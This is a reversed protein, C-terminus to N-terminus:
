MVGEAKDIYVDSGIQTYWYRTKSPTRGVIGISSSQLVGRIYCFGNSYLNYQRHETINTEAFTKLYVKDVFGLDGIKYITLTGQSDSSSGMFWDGQLLAPQRLTEAGNGVYNFEHHTVSTVDYPTSLVFGHVGKDREIVCLKTGDHNFAMGYIDSSSSAKTFTAVSVQASATGIDYPTSLTCEWFAAPSEEDCMILKTGDANFAFSNRMSSSFSLTADAPDVAASLDFESGPSLNHQELSTLDGVYFKSGDPSWDSYWLSSKFTSINKKNGEIFAFDTPLGVVPHDFDVANVFTSSLEWNANTSNPIITFSGQSYDTATTDFDIVANSASLEITYNRALTPDLTYTTDTAAVVNGVSVSSGGGGEEPRFQSLVSM